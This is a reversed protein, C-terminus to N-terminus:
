GNGHNKEVRVEMRSTDVILVEVDVGAWREITKRLKRRQDSDLKGFHRVIVRDGPEFVLRSCQVDALGPRRAMLM